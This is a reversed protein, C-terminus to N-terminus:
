AEGALEDAQQRDAEAADRHEQARHRHETERAGGREAAALHQNAARDHALAARAFGSMVRDHAETARHRALELTEAAKGADAQRRPLHDEPEAPTDHLRGLELARM